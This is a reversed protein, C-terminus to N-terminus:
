RVAEIVSAFREEPQSSSSRRRAPWTFVSSVSLNWVSGLVIGSLGALYWEVNSQLLARSLVVNAWAGFSCALAFKALGPLLRSGKLQRDRFTIRNNAFFNAVMAFTTAFFQAEVFHMHRLRMLTLLTVLHVLLGCGGVLLYVAMRPPLANGLLKNAVMFLYEIGVVIDLKSQGHRRAAFTYGVEGVRVPRRSSALLDVLIKFGEGQLDRVVEQLFERRLLFYGSMPDTLECRCISQSIKQGCRSLMVRGRKFDGMSGGVSNRTAVVVDLSERRLRRLMQPLIATDHQLDADMVAIVPAHTAMMGEICASALGRRGVRHILRVNPTDVACATVVEATGDPSDDDVFIAEWRLGHLHQALEALILPVNDRENFTPLVVALDLCHGAPVPHNLPLIHEPEFASQVPM